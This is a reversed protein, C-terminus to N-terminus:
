SSVLQLGIVSLVLSSLFFMRWFTVPEHFLVIGAVVTGIAGIAGWVAYATGVPIAKDGGMAKFLLYMSIAVCIAFSSLWFAMPKGTTQQAKGLSIAFGTEFLGGIILLLWNISM